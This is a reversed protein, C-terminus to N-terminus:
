TKKLSLIPLRSSIREPHMETFLVLNKTSSGSVLTVRDITVADPVGTSYNGDLGYDVFYEDILGAGDIKEGYIKLNGVFADRVYRFLPKGGSPIVITCDNGNLHGSFPLVGIGRETDAFGAKLKGIPEWDNPMTISRDETEPELKFYTNSLSNGNEVIEKIKKLDDASKIM